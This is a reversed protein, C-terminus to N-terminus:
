LTGNTILDLLSLIHKCPTGHRLFGRCECTATRGDRAVNLSYSKAEPDTAADLKQLHISRGEDCALEAVAYRAYCRSQKVTLIGVVPLYTDGTPLWDYSTRGKPDSKTAPLLNTYTTM